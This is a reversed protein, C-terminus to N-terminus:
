YGGKNPRTAQLGTKSVYDDTEVYPLIMGRLVPLLREPVLYKYELRKM